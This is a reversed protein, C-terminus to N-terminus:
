QRAALVIFKKAATAETGSASSLAARVIYIGPTLHADTESMNWTYSYSTTANTSRDHTSWVKRGAVDYVQLSVDLQTQPRDNIITFVAEGRVPTTVLLDFIQPRAGAGVQFDITKSAANNLADCARLTLTHSGDALAPISFAITGSRYDGTTPTFYSNLSYTLAESNDIVASIDHGIGSGTMNIGSDDSIRAVLLPTENVTSGPEFSETNLYLAIDPGTTDASIDPATGAIVFKDFRGHAEATKETNSAYLSILGAEGSYNNDLPIPFTCSFRGASVSDACTYLTRTRDYYTHPLTSESEDSSGAANHQCTVKERNDFVIPSVIGNFHEAVNGDEDVIHGEVTVMSGASVSTADRGTAAGNMKDIAIKYTPVALRIAPDGLLVFHAKNIYMRESASLGAIESKALSLAEGLTHTRGNSDCQLVYRMFRLNLALNETSYVTRATGLFGVAAGKSNLVADVAMNGQSMDFPAVDCAATVWLPPRPTTWETFDKRKIAQEHSLIFASGHGTYNMILAGDQMQKGIAKEAGSYSNGTAGQERAYTDWYIRQVRYDPYLQATQGAITDADLMHRNNNGDDAMVCITNKWAGVEENNIYAILKDVVGKAESANQAPIRGVGLRPKERLVKEGGGDDVLVFYEEMVYSLTHSLSNDSEYCLLYDDPTKGSLAPTVMRNDWVCNGFLLLNKPRDSTDAAKDWLMKVFRRIATADPTGSSFENYIQGATLVACRLGEKATHAAALRQAQQTLRGSSPVVIVLDIGSLAHLDQNAIAGITTPAPYSASPNFAVIEESRWATPTDNGSSFPVTWVGTAPDYSGSLEETEGSQSVRLFVTSADGGSLRFEIDGGTYPRFLLESGSMRLQRLYSARIYDLHGSVGSARTHTLGVKNSESAVDYLRYTGTAEVGYEYSGLQAFNKTGLTSDNWTVALSSASQGAACFKVVLSAYSKAVIGPLPLTYSRRNGTAFDYAEYFTRGTNIFSYGDTEVLAHDPFFDARAANGGVEYAYKELEKPRAEANETLFYYTHLSYPNNTHTFTAASSTSSELTWRTTGRGYFLVKSDTRYLPIEVLDDDIDEIATEPLVELNLGYLRVHGPNAFGMARLSANTIQHIGAKDVRIKVWKGTRLVSHDAYRPATGAAHATPMLAFLLLPVLLRKM